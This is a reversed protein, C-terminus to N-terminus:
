TAFARIAIPGRKGRTANTKSQRRMAEVRRWAPPMIGAYGLVGSCLDPM